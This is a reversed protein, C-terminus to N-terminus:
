SSGKASRTLNQFEQAPHSPRVFKPDNKELYVQIVCLNALTPNCKATLWATISARSLGTKKSLSAVSGSLSVADRVMEFAIDTLLRRPMSIESNFSLSPLLYHQLRKLSYITASCRRHRWDQLSSRSLGTARSLSLVSGAVEVAHTLLVVDIDKLPPYKM